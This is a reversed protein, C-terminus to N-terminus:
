ADELRCALTLYRNSFGFRITATIRRFLGSPNRLYYLLLNRRLSQARRETRFIVKFPNFRQTQILQDFPRFGYRQLLRRFKRGTFDHKHYPNADVSPTIPVSAILIGRPVLLVRSIRDLFLEPEDLHEITELTVVNDFSKEYFHLADAAIFQVGPAAYHAKAYSIADESIDIGVIPEVDSRADRIIKSGYGVGCAVDLCSGAQIHKAAFAYRQMHLTLTDAGTIENLKCAIPILREISAADLDM